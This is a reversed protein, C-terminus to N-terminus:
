SRDAINDACSTELFVALKGNGRLATTAVIIVQLTARGGVTDDGAGASDITIQNTGLAPAGTDDYIIVSHKRTRLTVKGVLSKIANARPGHLLGQWQHHVGLATAASGAIGINQRLYRPQVNAGEM